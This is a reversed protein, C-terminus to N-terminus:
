CSVKTLVCSAIKDALLRSMSQAQDTHPINDVAWTTAPSQGAGSTPWHRSYNVARLEGTGRGAGPGPMSGTIRRVGTTIVRWQERGAELVVRDRATGQFKQLMKSLM